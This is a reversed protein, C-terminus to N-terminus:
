NKDKIQETQDHIDDTSNDVKFDNNLVGRPVNRNFRNWWCLFYVTKRKSVIKMFIKSTIHRFYYSFNTIHFM